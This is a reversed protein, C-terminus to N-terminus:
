APSIRAQQKRWARAAERSILRRAGIKLTRPARGQQQLKFFFSQSIGHRECFQRITYADPDLPQNAQDSM